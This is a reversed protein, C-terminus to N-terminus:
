ENSSKWQDNNNRNNNININIRHFFKNCYVANFEHSIVEFNQVTAM